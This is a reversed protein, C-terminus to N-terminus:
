TGDNYTATSDEDQRNYKGNKISSDNNGMRISPIQIVDQNLYDNQEVTEDSKTSQISKTSQVRKKLLQQFTWNMESM